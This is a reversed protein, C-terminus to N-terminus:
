AKLYPKMAEFNWDIEAMEDAKLQVDTRQGDHGRGVMTKFVGRKKMIYQPVGHFQRMQNLMLLLSAFVTRAKDKQGSQYLDWAAVYV